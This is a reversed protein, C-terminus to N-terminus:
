DWRILNILTPIRMTIRKSDPSSRSSSLRALKTLDLVRKSWWAWRRWILIEMRFWLSDKRIRQSKRLILWVRFRLLQITRRWILWQNTLPPTIEWRSDIWRFGLTLSRMILRSKAIPLFVQINSRSSVKPSPGPSTNSNLLSSQLSFHLSSITCNTKLWIRPQAAHLPPNNFARRGQM